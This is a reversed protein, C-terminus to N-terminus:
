STQFMMHAIMCTNRNCKGTKLRHLFYGCREMTEMTQAMAYQLGCLRYLIIPGIWCGTPLGHHQALALWDFESTPQISVYPPCLRKFETMVLQERKRISIGTYRALRPKLEWDHKRHGRFVSDVEDPLAKIFTLLDSVQNIETPSDVRDDTMAFEETRRVSVDKISGLMSNLQAASDSM